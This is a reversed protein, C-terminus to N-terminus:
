GAKKEKAGALEMGIAIGDGISLLKELGEDSMKEIVKGLKELAQKQKETMEATRVEKKNIFLNYKM